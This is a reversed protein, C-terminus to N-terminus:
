LNAFFIKDAWKGRKRFVPNRKPKRIKNESEGDIIVVSIM